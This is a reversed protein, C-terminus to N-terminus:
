GGHAFIERLITPGDLVSLPGTGVLFFFLGVAALVFNKEASTVNGVVGLGAAGALSERDAESAGPSLAAATAQAALRYHIVAGGLNFAVFGAGALRGWGGFLIMLGGVIMFAVSAAAFLPTGWPVLLGTTRVTTPWDRLLGVAPYLFMWAYVARLAIWAFETETM